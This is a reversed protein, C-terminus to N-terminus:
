TATGIREADPIRLEGSLLRPLLADRTAALTRTEKRASCIRSNMSDFHAGLRAQTELPPLTIPHSLLIDSPLRGTGHGSSEVRLLLDEQGNLLAFLLLTSQISQPVLAKVDQNFAVDRRAQSVRVKEHLGMGRVMVLCSGTPALRTGNGLAQETVMEDSEDAHLSTMAKPSIWPISGGWFEPASKAPTGGSLAGAWSSLPQRHWGKPIEDGDSEVFESPFLAATEANMGAPQKGAAKARVPDFDVFWSKFLGRAMAELTENTRRNLEIKDDLTGLVHAITRQSRSDPLTIWLRRQDTLSLYPAMDTSAQMGRLQAAFEQSRAWYRLFGPALRNPDRSRWYSLHPSYVVPPLADDIWATRGTSNGKTTIVVDGPRSLKSQVTAALGAHFREVGDLDIYTDTVHGARLFIPGDGGLENNKARYGDGIELLGEEILDEFRVTRCDDAM